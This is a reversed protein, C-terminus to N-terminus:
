AQLATIDADSFDATNMKEGFKTDLVDRTYVQSLAAKGSLVGLIAQIDSDSLAIKDAIEKLTDLEEPAMSVLANIANSIAEEVEEKTYADAIGYGSITTASDAKPAVANDSYEKAEQLAIAVQALVTQVNLNFREAKALQMGDPDWQWLEGLAVLDEYTQM